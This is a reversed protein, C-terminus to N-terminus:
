KRCSQVRGKRRRRGLTSEEPRLSQIHKQPKPPSTPVDKKDQDSFISDWRGHSNAPQSTEPCMSKWMPWRRLLLWIVGSFYGNAIGLASAATDKQLAGM